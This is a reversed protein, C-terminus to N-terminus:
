RGHVVLTNGHLHSSVAYKFNWFNVIKGKIQSHSQNIFFKAHGTLTINHLTLDSSQKSYHSCFVYLLEKEREM